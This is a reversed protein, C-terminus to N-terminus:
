VIIELKITFQFLRPHPTSKYPLYAAEYAWTHYTGVLCAGRRAVSFNVRIRRTFKSKDRIYNEPTGVALRSDNETLYEFSKHLSWQQSANSAPAPYTRFIQMTQRQHSAMKSLKMYHLRRDIIHHFAFSPPPWWRVYVYQRESLNRFTQTSAYRCGRRLLVVQM